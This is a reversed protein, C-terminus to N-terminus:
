QIEQTLKNDIIEDVCKLEMMIEKKMEQQMQSM